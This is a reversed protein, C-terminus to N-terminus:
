KKVPFKQMINSEITACGSNASQLTYYMCTAVQSAHVARLRHSMLWGFAKMVIKGLEEGTRFEKRPGLLLSPRLIHLAQFPIQRLENELEGKVRNYFFRSRANAGMATVIAFKETGNQHATHAVLLPYHYDVNRFQEKSGAKKKTTGLCCYVHHAQILEKHPQEFDFVIQELRPHQFAIPKRVLAKVRQYQPSELLLQLLYSGVLGTAGAILATKPTDNHATNM